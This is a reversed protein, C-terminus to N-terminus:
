NIEWLIIFKTNKKYFLSNQFNQLGSYLCKSISFLEKALYQYFFTPLISLLLYEILTNINYLYNISLIIFISFFDLKKYLFFFVSNYLKKLFIYLIIIELSGEINKPILESLYLKFNIIIYIEIFQYNESYRYM